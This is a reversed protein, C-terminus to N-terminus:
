QGRLASPALEIEQGPQIDGRVIREAIVYEVTDQIARAMPRAGFQPNYGITILYDILESTIKITVGHEVDLRKNLSKLMLEAVARIHEPSLPTFTIVGDFRNLLEPKFLGTRLIHERLTEDFNAPLPGASVAQRIFEAGANSTAILITHKFSITQGRVDTMYGEDFVPLFIQLVEPSAKEFEDLLLVAFPRDAVLSTLRGTPNQPTGILHAIADGGRFESMDLRLLHDQSGFYAEALAKATETKGVGTPGMFLFTGIPRNLSRTGARSRVMAKVVARVANEQNIVRRHILEDLQLLHQQEDAGIVGIPVGVKQSILYNIHAETIIREGRGQVMAVAESLFDFAREPFPIHPLISSTGRVLLRLTKYPLFVGSQREIPPAAVVLAKLTDEESLPPIHEVEFYHILETNHVLRLHYEDASVLAVVRVTFSSLFPLLVDSLNVRQEGEGGLISGLGDLVVIINGAREIERLVRSVASLQGAASGSTALLEAVHLYVVRQGVLAPHAQGASVRRSVEHVIGLQGVGPQGVVLVNSQRQRALANIVQTIVEERGVLIEDWVEGKPFYSLQDVLPTYGSTWSLGIGTFRLLRERDWWRAAAARADGRVTQWWVTFSVDKEQLDISRLFTRMAPHLLLAGFVHEPQIRRAGLAAAIDVTRSVVDSWSSSPLVAAALANWVIEPELELRRLIARVRKSTLIAQVTSELSQPTQRSAYPAILTVFEFSAAELMNGTGAAALDVVPTNGTRYPYFTKAFIRILWLMWTAASMLLAVGFWPFTSLPTALLAAAWVLVTVLTASWNLITLAPTTLLRYGWVHPARRAVDVIYSAM